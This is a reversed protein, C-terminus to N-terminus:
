NENQAGGYSAVFLAPFEPSRVKNAHCRIGADNKRVKIGCACIASPKGGVGELGCNTCVYVRRDGLARSAVRGFCVRCVHPELRMQASSEHIAERAPNQSVFQRAPADSFESM